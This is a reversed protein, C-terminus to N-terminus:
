RPQWTRRVAPRLGKAAFEDFFDASREFADNGVGFATDQEGSAEPPYQPDNKGKGQCVSGLGLLDQQHRHQMEM